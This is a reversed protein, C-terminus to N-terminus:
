KQIKYHQLSTKISSITALLAIFFISTFLMMTEIKLTNLHDIWLGIILFGVGGIISLIKQKTNM